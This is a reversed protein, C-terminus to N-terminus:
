TKPVPHAGGFSSLPTLTSHVTTKNVKPLFGKWDVNNTKNNQHLSLYMATHLHCEPAESICKQTPPVWLNCAQQNGTLHGLLAGTKAIGWLLEQREAEPFDKWTHTHKSPLTCWRNIETAWRRAVWYWRSFECCAM